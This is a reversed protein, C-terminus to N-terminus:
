KYENKKYNELDAGWPDIINQTDHSLRLSNAIMGLDEKFCTETEVILLASPRAAHLSMRMQACTFPLQHLRAFDRARQNALKLMPILTIDLHFVRVGLLLIRAAFWDAEDSIMAPTPQNFNLRQAAMLCALLRINPILAESLMFNNEISSLTPRLDSRQPNGDVVMNWRQLQSVSKSQAVTHDSLQPIFDTANMILSRDTLM